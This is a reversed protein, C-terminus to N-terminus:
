LAAPAKHEQGLLQLTRGWSVIGAHWRVSWYSRVDRSGRSDRSCPRVIVVQFSPLTADAHIMIPTTPKFTLLSTVTSSTGTRPSM